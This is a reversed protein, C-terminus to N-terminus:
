FKFRFYKSFKQFKADVVKSHGAHKGETYVVENAAWLQFFNTSLEFLAPM